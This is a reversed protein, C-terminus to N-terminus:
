LYDSGIIVRLSQPLIDVELVDTTEVVEGDIQVPSGEPNRIIAKNCKIINTHLSTHIEASLMQYLIGIGASKPFEELICIEFYGDNLIGEPNITANSGFTNANAITLMFAKGRFSKAPTIVEYSKSEYSVYERMVHWAYAGPGRREGEAFKKVVLANFGLDSLHLSPYGNISLTDISAVVGTTLLELASDVDQPIGLDKSLGNGSGQPIIGLNINKNVLLAGTLNVTGDGGVAVVTDPQYTHILDRLTERDKFGTTKFVTYELEYKEVFNILKEIFVVKDISGSIPNIVFITKGPLKYM